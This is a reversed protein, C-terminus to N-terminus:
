GSGREHAPDIWTSPPMLRATQLVVLLAADLMGVSAVAAGGGDGLLPPLREVAVQGLDRVGLVEEVALLVHRGDVRVMVFRTPRAPTDGGLLAGLDVVPLPNGRARALGRVFAPMSALTEVPLPRMTEVVHQLPLACLRERVRCILAPARPASGTATAPTPLSHM